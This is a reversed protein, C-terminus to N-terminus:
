ITKKWLAVLWVRLHLIIIIGSVIASFSKGRVTLNFQDITESEGFRGKVEFTGADELKVESVFSIYIPIFHYLLSYTIDLSFLESIINLCM